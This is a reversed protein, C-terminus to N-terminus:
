TVPTCDPSSVRPGSSSAHPRRTIPAGSSGTLSSCSTTLSVGAGRKTPLKCIACSTKPLSTAVAALGTGIAGSAAM